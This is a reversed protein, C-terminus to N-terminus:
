FNECRVGCLVGWLLFSWMLRLFFFTSTTMLSKDTRNLNIKDADDNTTEKGCCLNAWVVVVIASWVQLPCGCQCDFYQLYDRPFVDGLVDFMHSPIMVIVPM